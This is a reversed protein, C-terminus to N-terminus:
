IEIKSLKLWTSIYGEYILFKIFTSHSMLVVDIIYNKWCSSNLYEKLFLETYENIVEAQGLVELFVYKMYFRIEDNQLLEQGIGIFKNMDYDLLNQFVMQIQYRKTPTQKTKPGIIDIISSGDYVQNLMKEVSFYDYFSQHVFGISKGDSLLLGSSSLQEIAVKSYSSLMYVPVMLKGIKDINNVIADKLETLQTNSTGMMECNFRLQEWWQKILDSSTIYTNSRRKEELNTWIYLNSPIRLLVQLKRSLSNYAVGIIAKVNDDNMERIVIEKWRIQENEHLNNSFLFKIGRDNEFDFTRCVFILIIKKDRNENLNNVERIMEKCVELATRSHNSTWRIADLQDLVLVAERDKSVANLCFVPSAPFGLSEGYKESTCDPTRRDLKLALHVIDDKKLQYLLELICGSKGSGAKGHM